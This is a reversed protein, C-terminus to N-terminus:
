IINHQSYSFKFWHLNYMFINLKKKFILMLNEEVKLIDNRWLLYVVADFWFSDLLLRSNRFDCKRGCAGVPFEAWNTNPASSRAELVFSSGELEEQGCRMAPKSWFWSIRQDWPASSGCWLFSESMIFVQLFSCSDRLHRSYNNGSPYETSVLCNCPWVSTRVAFSFKCTCYLRQDQLDYRAAIGPTQM